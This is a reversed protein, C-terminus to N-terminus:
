GNKLGEVVQLQSGKYAPFYTAILCIVQTALFIVALDIFRVETYIKDIRYVSGSILSYHDQLYMFAFCLDYGIVIGIITGMLGVIVGQSMFILRVQRQSLGLTKLIAIDSYRQRIFVYLTSSINFAAVIVILLVVFFIVAREIVVAEFVNRNVDYWTMVSFNPGLSELLRSGAQPADDRNELKVFVGTYRDGIETLAQLASLNSLVLRENWDNKGFDVVASVTFEKSQRRFATTEFPTALPVVLYIKDDIKLDYKKALGAGVAIHDAELKLQGQKVRKELNLVGGMAAADIGQLLVGSVQGKRALVAEAYAFRMMSVVRPESEKIKQSFSNWDDVLRGRRVVQLDGTVDTMAMKLTEVYGSMVAMSAVLAAVGLVLGLFSLPASGGFLVKRSFLLKSAIWFNLKM